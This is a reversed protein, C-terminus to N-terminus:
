RKHALFWDYLEQNQYTETWSDHGAEPYITLNVTQNGVRKLANVMRESENMPVVEDRGGHFAWVPLKRLAAANRALLVTLLDGGGCIPAIAAFRAPNRLGVNWAGYGGMSLGTLYVRKEDARTNKLVDDLLALLAEEPWTEGSPCQPSILIFPFNPDAKAIKPPGHVAVRSLNTGREGAGHLFLMVPWRTEGNPDYKAPLHLLYKLEFQKTSSGRFTKAVQNKSAMDEDDALTCVALCFSGLISLFIRATM